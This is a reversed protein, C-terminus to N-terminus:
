RPGTACRQLKGSARANGHTARADRHATTGNGYTARTDRQTARTDRYATTGNGYTARTDRQTARTFRETNRHPRTGAWRLSRTATGGVCCFAFWAM